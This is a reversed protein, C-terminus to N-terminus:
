FFNNASDQKLILFARLADMLILEIVIQHVFLLFYESEFYKNTSRGYILMGVAELSCSANKSM